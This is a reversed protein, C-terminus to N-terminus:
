DSQAEQTSTDHGCDCNIGRRHAAKRAMSHHNTLQNGLIPMVMSMMMSQSFAPLALKAKSTPRSPSGRRQSTM